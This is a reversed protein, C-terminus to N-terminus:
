IVQLLIADNRGKQNAAIINEADANVVINANHCAKNRRYLDM